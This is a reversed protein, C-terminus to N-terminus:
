CRTEPMGASSASLGIRDVIWPIDTTQHSPQESAILKPEQFRRVNKHVPLLRFADGGFVNIRVIMPFIPMPPRCPGRRPIHIRLTRASDISRGMLTKCCSCGPRHVRPFPRTFGRESIEFPPREHRAGFFDCRLNSPAGIRAHDGTHRLSDRVRVIEFIGFVLFGCFAREQHEFEFDRWRALFNQEFAEVVDASGHLVGDGDVGVFFRM